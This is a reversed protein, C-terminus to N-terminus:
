PIRVNNVEVIMDSSKYNINVSCWTQSCYSSFSHELSKLCRDYSDEPLLKRPFETNREHFLGLQTPFVQSLLLKGFCNALLAMLVMRVVLSSLGWSAASSKAGGGYVKRCHCPWLTRWTAVWQGLVGLLSFLPSTAWTAYAELIILDSM